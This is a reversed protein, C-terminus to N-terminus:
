NSRASKIVEKKSQQEGEQNPKKDIIQNLVEKTYLLRKNMEIDNNSIADNLRYKIRQRQKNRYIVL